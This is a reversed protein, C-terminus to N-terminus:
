LPSTVPTLLRLEQVEFAMVRSKTVFTFSKQAISVDQSHQMAPSPAISTHPESRALERNDRCDIAPRM